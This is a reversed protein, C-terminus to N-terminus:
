RKWPRLVTYKPVATISTREARILKRRTLNRISAQVSSKSLGTANSISQYSAEVPNKRAAPRCCLYLYVLFASPQRDHEVLDLMLTDIIYADIRYQQM